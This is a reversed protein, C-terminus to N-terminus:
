FLIWDGWIHVEGKALPAVSGGGRSAVLHPKAVPPALHVDGHCRREQVGCGRPPDDLSKIQTWGGGRPSPSLPPTSVGCGVGDWVVDGHLTANKNAVM